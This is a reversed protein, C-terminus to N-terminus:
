KEDYQYHIVRDGAPTYGELQHREQNLQMTSCMGVFLLATLMAFGTAKM